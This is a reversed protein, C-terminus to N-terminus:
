AAPTEETVGGEPAKEAEPAKDAEAPVDGANEEPAEAIADTIVDTGEAFPNEDDDDVVTSKAKSLRSSSQSQFKARLATPQKNIATDAFKHIDGHALATKLGGTTKSEEGEGKGMDDAEAYIILGRGVVSFEGSLMVLSSVLEGTAVGEENAEINGLDGVHREEDAPGGHQKNHPNYHAGFHNALDASEHIIMGHLGPTLGKIEYKIHCPQQLIQEFHIKGTVNAADKDMPILDCASKVTGLRVLEEKTISGDKAYKEWLEETFADGVIKMCEEKNVVDPIASAAAGM